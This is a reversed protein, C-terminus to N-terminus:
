WELSRIFNRSPKNCLQNNNTLVIRIRFNILFYKIVKIETYETELRFRPKDTSSLREAYINEERIRNIRKINFGTTSVKKNGICRIVRFIVFHNVKANIIYKQDARAGSTLITEKLIGL